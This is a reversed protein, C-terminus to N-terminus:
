TTEREHQKWTLFDHRANFLRGAMFYTYWATALGGFAWGAIDAISKWRKELDGARTARAWDGGLPNVWDWPWIQTFSFLWENTANIALMIALPLFYWARWGLRKFNVTRKSRRRELFLVLRSFYMYLLAGWGFHVAFERNFIHGQLEKTPAVAIVTLIVALLSGFISFPLWHKRIYRIVSKM